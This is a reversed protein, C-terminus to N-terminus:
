HQGCRQLADRRLHETIVGLRQTCESSGTSPERKGEPTVWLLRPVEKGTQVELRYHISIRAWPLCQYQALSQQAMFLFTQLKSGILSTWPFNIFVCGPQLDFCLRVIWHGVPLPSLRLGLIMSIEWIAQFEPPLPWSEHSGWIGIVIRLNLNRVEPLWRAMKLAKWTSCICILGMIKGKRRGSRPWIWHEMNWKVTGNAVCTHMGSVQFDSKM